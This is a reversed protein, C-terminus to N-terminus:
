GFGSRVVSHWVETKANPAQTEPSSCGTLLVAGILLTSVFHLTKM